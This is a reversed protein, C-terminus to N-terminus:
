VTYCASEGSTACIPIIFLMSKLCASSQFNMLSKFCYNYVASICLASASACYLLLLTATLVRHESFWAV